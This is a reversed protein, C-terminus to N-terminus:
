PQQRPQLRTNSRPQLSPRNGQRVQGDADNLMPIVPLNRAAEGRGVPEAKVLLLPSPALQVVAPAPPPAQFFGAGLPLAMQIHAPPTAYGNEPQRPQLVVRQNVPSNFPLLPL